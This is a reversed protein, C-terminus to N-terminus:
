VKSFPTIRSRLGTVAIRSSVSTAGPTNAIECQGTCANSALCHLGLQEIIAVPSFAVESRIVAVGRDSLEHQWTEPGNGPFLGAAIIGRACTVPLMTATAIVVKV